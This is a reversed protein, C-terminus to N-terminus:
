DQAGRRWPRFSSSRAGTAPAAKVADLRSRLTTVQGTLSDVLKKAEVLKADKEQYAAELQAQRKALGDREQELKANRNRLSELEQQLKSSQAGADAKAHTDQQNPNAM